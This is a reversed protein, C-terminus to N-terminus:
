GRPVAQPLPPARLRGNSSSGGASSGTSAVQEPVDVQSRVRVRRQGLRYRVVSEPPSEVLGMARSLLRRAYRPADAFLDELDSRTRPPLPHLPVRDGGGRSRRAATPGGTARPPGPRRRTDLDGAARTGVPLDPHRR